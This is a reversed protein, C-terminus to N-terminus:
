SPMLQQSSRRSTWTNFTPPNAKRNQRKPRAMRGPFVRDFIDVVPRRLHQQGMRDLVSHSRMGLLRDDNRDAAEAAAANGSLYFAYRYVDRGYRRYLDSFSAASLGIASM